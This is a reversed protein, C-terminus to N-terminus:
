RCTGRVIGAGIVRGEDEMEYEEVATERAEWEEEREEVRTGGM